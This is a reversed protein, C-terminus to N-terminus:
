ELDITINKVTVEQKVPQDYGMIKSIKEYAALATRNDPNVNGDKDVSNVASDAINLIKGVLIDPSLNLEEAFEDRAQKLALKVIRKRDKLPFKNLRNNWRLDNGNIIDNIRSDTRSQTFLINKIYEILADQNDLSWDSPSTNEKYEKINEM